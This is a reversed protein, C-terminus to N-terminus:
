PAGAPRRPRGTVPDADALGVSLRYSRAEGPLLRQERWQLGLFIENSALPVRDEVPAWRGAFNSLYVESPVEGGGWGLYNALGTKRDLIGAWRHAAADIATEFPLVEEEVWGVNGDASGFYGVWPEDGYLYASRIEGPGLSSVVVSLQFAREGATFTAVRDMRLRGGTVEVVHSSEIVASRGDDQLVRSGLFRWASPGLTRGSAQDVWGENVNCWIHFWGRANRYAMGSQSQRDLAASVEPAAGGVFLGQPAGGQSDRYRGLMTLLETGDALLNRVLGRGGAEDWELALAPLGARGPAAEVGLLRRLPAFSAGVVLRAGDGLLLDDKLELRGGAEGRLLYLGRWRGQFDVRTSAALLAAGTLAVLAAIPALRRRWAPQWTRADV